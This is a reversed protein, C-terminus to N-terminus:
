YSVIVMAYRFWSLPDVRELRSRLRHGRAKGGSGTRGPVINDDRYLINICTNIKKKKVFTYELLISSTMFVMDGSNIKINSEPEREWAYINYSGM